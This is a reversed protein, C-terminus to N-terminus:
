RLNLRAKFQSGFLITAIRFITDQLVPTLYLYCFLFLKGNLSNPIYFRRFSESHKRIKRLIDLRREKTFSSFYLSFVGMVIQNLGFKQICSRRYEDDTATSDYQYYDLLLKSALFYSDPSQLRRSLSLEGYHMYHYGAHSSFDFRGAYKLCEYYFVHDEHLHLREDFRICYSKVIPMAFMKGLIAGLHLIRGREPIEMTSGKAVVGVYDMFYGQFVIQNDAYPFDMFHSLYDPGIWDDSDIFTVYDGSAKDLANNRAVSVGSNKQHYVKIRIDKRAYEDCIDGSCDTSGDDVLLLEWHVYEQGIISEITKRLHNESNYVPTIISIKRLNIQRM